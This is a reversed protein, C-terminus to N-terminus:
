FWLEFIKKDKYKIWGSKFKKQKTKNFVLIYGKDINERDLYGYLQELGLQHYEKGHFLKLEVIYKKNNYIILVDMRKEASTEVEKFAFGKNNLLPQLFVLFLLRVEKELFDDSKLVDHQSYKSKIVEQFRLLFKDLILDGSDDIYKMAILDSAITRGNDTQQISELYNYIRQEYIRNHVQCHGNNNKLIGYLICKEQIPNDLSFKIDEGNFIIKVVLQYIDNNNEINKILSEFNTNQRTMLIKVASNLDILSLEKESKDILIKEDMIKCLVSVLFPYGSTWYFIKESLESENLKIKKVRKYEVLMKKIGDASLEMLVDFEASINWPSNYKVSDVEDRIKLKLNRVDHVGTLIVSHFTKDKGAKQNLYKERLMAIFDLFLKNNSAKDVEDILLVIKKKIIKSFDTIFISLKFFSNVDNNENFIKKLNDDNLYDTRLGIISKINASVRNEYLWTESSISEFSISICLYDTKQNLYNELLFLTTTKGYQRPKNITFYQGKEVMSFIQKIKDDINVYFHEAPIILGETNFYKEM